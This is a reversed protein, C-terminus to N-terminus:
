YVPAQRLVVVTDLVDVAPRQVFGFEELRDPAVRAHALLQWDPFGLHLALLLWVADLLRRLLELLQALPHHLKHLGGLRDLIVPGLPETGIANGNLLLEPPHTGIVLPVFNGFPLHGNLDVRTLDVPDIPEPLLDFGTPLGIGDLM